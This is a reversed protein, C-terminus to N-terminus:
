QSYPPNKLLVETLPLKIYPTLNLKFIEDKSFWGFKDHESSLTIRGAKVVAENMLNVYTYGTFDGENQILSSVHIPSTNVIIVLGTEEFVERTLNFSLTELPKLKGGPLEWEKAYAKIKSRRLLLYKGNKNKILARAVLWVPLKGTDEKKSRPSVEKIYSTLAKKGELTLDYELVSKNSVWEFKSEEDSVRVRGGVYDAVATLVLYTYGIYKQTQIKTLVQSHCYYNNSTLTVTLNTEEVIEREILDQLDEGREIKGGPLEWKNPNHQNKSGRKILLINNNADRIICRAVVLIKNKNTAPM